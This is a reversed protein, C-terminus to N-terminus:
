RIFFYCLNVAMIGSADLIAYSEVYGLCLGATIRTLLYIDSVKKSINACIVINDFTIVSLLNSSLLLAQHVSIVLM